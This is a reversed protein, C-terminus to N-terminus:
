QMPCVVFSVISKIWESGCESGRLKLPASFPKYEKYEFLVPFALFHVELVKRTTWFPIVFSKLFLIISLSGGPFCSFVVFFAKFNYILWSLRMDSLFKYHEQM